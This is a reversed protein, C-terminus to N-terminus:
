GEVLVSMCLWCSMQRSPINYITTPVPISGAVALMYFQIEVMSNGSMLSLFITRAAPSSGVYVMVTRKRILSPRYARTFEVEKVILSKSSVLQALRAHICIALRGLFTSILDM